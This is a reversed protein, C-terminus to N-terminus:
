VVLEKPSATLVRCGQETVVVSDEIRVGGVGPVYVGPEVTVVAGAYLSDSSGAGVAPAEHIELGVGHGTGHSFADKWGAADIVRRCAADVDSCMAGAVVSKVGENQSVAVVEFMRLQEADPPDRFSFTRTMDSCYGDVMAGFDVVVLEAPMIQRTTPEAHPKASNPGSAVITDFSNGSAGLRRLEFDLAMAVGVETTDVSGDGARGSRETSRSSGIVRALRELVNGLAQDAIECAAEIRAVEGADKVVRLSEVVGDAPVLELGGLDKSLARWRSWTLHTAEFAIRSMGSARAKLAKVQSSVSGVEITVSAGASGTQEGAQTGYRGDTVLLADDESVLLLAASGSFGTLYRVNALHSVILADLAMDSLKARLADLRRPVDMPPLGALDFAQNSVPQGGRPRAEVFDRRM